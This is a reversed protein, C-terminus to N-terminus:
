KDKKLEDLEKKLKEKKVRLALGLTSNNFKNKRHKYVIPASTIVRYIIFIIAGIFIFTVLSALMEYFNNSM